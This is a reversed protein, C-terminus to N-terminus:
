RVTGDRGVAADERVLERLRAAIAEPAVDNIWVGMASESGALYKLKTPARRISFVRLHLAAHERGVRVPAQYWAAIYPLADVGEFYRDLARLLRLYIPGFDDREAATLEPLDPVRRRPYLHVEVPWRAAAPVFATWHESEDVIRVGASREGAVLDEFLNRSTREAYRQASALMQRTRPTVFPYAYIQGHPHRLTVGIEEGRNEFCFVQEVGPLSGLCVTRDVWAEMVTRVRQPTLQAFATDHDSTFCVVECRGVGPRRAFLDRADILGTAAEQSAGDLSGDVLGAGVGAALDPAAGSFSAGSFSPFRNEFVVVDYDSAPIETLRGDRSPCLPCEDAPPLFTRDQRHSAVAVWEDFVPDYRLESGGSREPLTRQDLVDRDASDGEDFYLLERGDALRTSTKRM